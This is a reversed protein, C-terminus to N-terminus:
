NIYITVVSSLDFNDTELTVRDLVTGPAVDFYLTGTSALGPNLELLMSGSGVHGAEDNASYKVAGAYPHVSDDDVLIQNTSGNTVGFNVACFKGTPVVDDGGYASPASTLGCQVSSVTWTM